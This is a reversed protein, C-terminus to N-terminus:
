LKETINTYIDEWKAYIWDLKHKFYYYVLLFVIGNALGFITTWLAEFIGNSLHEITSVFNPAVDSQSLQQFAYTIGTVTGFLGVLPALAAYNWFWEIRSKRRLNEIEISARNEFAHKVEESPKLWRYGNMRHIELGTKIIKSTPFPKLGKRMDFVGKRLVWKRMKSTIKEDNIVPEYIEDILTQMDGVGNGNAEGNSMEGNGAILDHFCDEIKIVLEALMDDVNKRGNLRTEDPFAIIDEITKIARDGDTTWYEMCAVDVSAMKETSSLGNPVNKAAQDAVKRSNVAITEWAKLIFKFKNTLRNEYSNDCSLTFSWILDRKSRKFPFINGLYLTRTSYFIMIAFSLFTSVSLFIFAAKGLQTSRDYIEPKGVSLLQWRGPHLYYSWSRGVLSAYDGQNQKGVVVIVPASEAVLLATQSYARIKFIYKEGVILNNFDTYGTAQVERILPEAGIDGRYMYVQYTFDLDPAAVPTPAAMGSDPNLVRVEWNLRLDAKKPIRLWNKHLKLYEVGQINIEYSPSALGLGYCCLLITLLAGKGVASGPSWQTVKM